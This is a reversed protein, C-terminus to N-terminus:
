RRGLQAGIKSETRVKGATSANARRPTPRQTCPPHASASGRVAVAGSRASWRPSGAGERLPRRDAEPGEDHHCPTQRLRRRRARVGQAGALDGGGVRQEGRAHVAGPHRRAPLVPEASGVARLRTLHCGAGAGPSADGRDVRDSATQQDGHNGHAADGFRSYHTRSV